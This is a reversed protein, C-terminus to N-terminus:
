LTSSCLEAVIRVILIFLSDMCFMHMDIIFRIAHLQVAAKDIRRVGYEVDIVIIEKERNLTVLMSWCMCQTTHDTNEGTALIVLVM